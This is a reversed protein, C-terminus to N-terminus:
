AALDVATSGVERLVPNFAEPQHALEDTAPYPTMGAARTEVRGCRCAAATPAAVPQGPPEISGEDCVRMRVVGGSHRVGLTFEGDQCSGCRLVANTAIESTLLACSDHHPHERGPAASVLRHRSIDCVLGLKDGGGTLETVAKAPDDIDVAIVNAGDAALRRCYAYGIGRAAGTVVATKGDLAV